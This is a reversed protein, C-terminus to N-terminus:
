GGLYKADRHSMPDNMVHPIQDILDTALLHFGKERYAFDGAAGNIFAGAVAAEFPRCGQAILSAIIGSLVDGTGGVTMGPNGTWNLRVRSGDSVIDVRGKLLIVAQADAALRKVQGVREELEASVKVGTLAEFEGAHPTLVAPFPLSRKFAGLAKLADADFLAPKRSHELMRILQEVGECSERSLGMGPGVAVATVRELLPKLQALNDPNFHEGSLKVTILNPSISSIAQATRAPAAVYALDTGTRLAALAVLAPAGSYTEDGGIVLVRGFDGKRSQSPRRGAILDVDGPGAYLEAEPPIGISAVRVEGVYEKAKAFGAKLAHFTVTLQARVAEGRVEGSDSDVGTPVDVSVIFGSSRNLARVAGLIPQRLSGKLGVGLISDVLVDAELPQFDASDPFVQLKVSSSMGKLIGWNISVLRDRINSESGVLHLSVDYGMSALHRAAVMGDGGNRGTGALVLIRSGQKFRSAVEAAVARGANEMLQLTSVGLYESNLDLRRVDSSTM